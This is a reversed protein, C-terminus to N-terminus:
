RVARSVVADDTFHDDDFDVSFDYPKDENFAATIFYRGSDFHYVVEPVTSGSLNNYDFGYHGEQFQFLQDRADYNDVAVINWADEDVYFRRRTITHRMHPRLTAEVVWVRHLEYRPLAPNLHRPAALDKFKVAPGAIRNSDYAIYMEQKGVLKWDYREQTGNFMDVQDYFQHGDTGEYPNDCCITPARRIRRTGPSYLWAARGDNGVGAKDHVLIVTGAMRPPAVTRSLYRLFEGSTATLVRGRRISAYDFKVDEVLKTLQFQGGPRVILQNNFRLVTEGRWKLKHNWIVEAGSQPIPFPLGLRCQDPQDTGILQCTTANAVTADLVEQPWTVVRHGPYVDMRYTDPYRELLLRHGATLRAAHQALGAKTITFLPREADIAPDSRFEGRPDGRRAAPTWAPITGETNGAREAGVPTLDRGLRAAEEPAVRATAGVSVLALLAAVFAPTRPRMAIERPRAATM